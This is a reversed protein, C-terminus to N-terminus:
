ELWEAQARHPPQMMWQLYGCEICILTYVKKYDVGLLASTVTTNVQASGEIFVDHECHPCVIKKGALIYAGPTLPKGADQKSKNVRSLRSFFDNSM